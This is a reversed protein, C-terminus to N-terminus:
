SAPMRSPANFKTLSDGLQLRCIPVICGQIIRCPGRCKALSSQPLMGRELYGSVFATTQDCHSSKSSRDPMCLLGLGLPVHESKARYRIPGNAFLLNLQLESSDYERSRRQDRPQECSPFPIFCALYMWLWIPLKLRNHGSEPMHSPVRGCQLSKLFGTFEVCPSGKPCCCGDCQTRKRSNKAPEGRLNDCEPARSAGRAAYWWSKWSRDAMSM